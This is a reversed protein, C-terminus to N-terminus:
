LGAGEIPAIGIGRFRRTGADNKTLYVGPTRELAERIQQRTPPKERNEAAWGLCSEQLAAPATEQGAALVCRDAIWRGLVDQDAFPRNPAPLPPHFRNVAKHTYARTPGIVTLARGMGGRNSIPLVM